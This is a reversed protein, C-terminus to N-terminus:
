RHRSPSGHGNQPASRAWTETEPSRDDIPPLRQGARCRFRGSPCAASRRCACSPGCREVRDRGADEGARQLARCRGACRSIGTPSYNDAHLQDIVTLLREDEFRAPRGAASPRRDPQRAARAQCGRGPRGAPFVTRSRTVVAHILDPELADRVAVHRMEPTFCRRPDRPIQTCCFATALVDFPAVRPGGRARILWILHRTPSRLVREAGSCPSRPVHTSSAVRIKGSRRRDSLTQAELPHPLRHHNRRPRAVTISRWARSGSV